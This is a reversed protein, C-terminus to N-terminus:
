SLSPQLTQRSLSLKQQVTGRQTVNEGKERCFIKDVKLKGTWISSCPQFPSSDLFIELNGEIQRGGMRPALNEICGAGPPAKPGEASLLPADPHHLSPISAPSAVHRRLARGTQSILRRAFTISRGFRICVILPQYGALSQPRPSSIYSTSSVFRFIFFEHFFHVFSHLSVSSLPTCFLSKWAECNNKLLVKLESRM